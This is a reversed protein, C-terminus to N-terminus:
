VHLVSRLYRNKLALIRSVSAQALEYYEQSCDMFSLVARVGSEIKESRHCILAMDIDAHMVRAMATEFGFHKVIAGMDLDDTMVVGQYHLQRRLLDRAIMQSLSAPWDPDLRPYTIHSLMVGAVGAGVARIFPILDFSELSSLPIDLIPLDLHSDLTTRGIGPFHKAVAMIGNEQLHKIVTEGMRAVWDPAPGFSRDAMISDVESPAVDLVPSFNM